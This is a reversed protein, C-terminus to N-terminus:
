RLTTMATNYIGHAPCFNIILNLSKSKLNTLSLAEALEPAFVYDLAEDTTMESQDKEKPEDEKEQVPAGIGLPTFLLARL